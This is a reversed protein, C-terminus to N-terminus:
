DTKNKTFLYLALPKPHSSIYAIVTEIDTYCIMPLIPGFIEEQMIPSDLSVNDLLTPEIFRRSADTHGGYVVTGSKLLSSVRNFHKENVIVNMDSMDGNPFFSKMAQAYAQIFQAKVSEHIFLYDPEVCTQGANITKGFAIRKAALTIDATEDVVVPSKGGLELTIPTLYKSASEMVLHGVAPSGTFFIYDFQQELLAANQERGGEIVTIYEPPFAESIIKALASSTAPTYASPKVVATCGASIAGVLPDLCLLVPYNWPSMILSVGFPEPSIYSRSPFDFLPTPVKKDKVWHALHKRHYSIEDLVLGTETMYVETACKNLDTKMAENILSENKQISDYLKQLM